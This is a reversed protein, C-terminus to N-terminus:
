IELFKKVYQSNENGYVGSFWYTKGDTETEYTMDVGMRKYLRYSSQASVNKNTELTFQKALKLGAPIILYKPDIEAYAEDTGSNHVGHHSVQLYDCKIPYKDLNTMMFNWAVPGADGSMLIKKGEVTMMFVLGANNSGDVVKFANEDYALVDEPTSIVQLEIEGVSAKEGLVFSRVPTDPLKEAWLKLMPEGWNNIDNYWIEGIKVDPCGANLMACMAGFHDGHPHTIIWVPIRIDGDGNLERLTQYLHEGVSSNGGDFVLFSGDKLHYIVSMGNAFGDTTSAGCLLYGRTKGTNQNCM